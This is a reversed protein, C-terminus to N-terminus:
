PTKQLLVAYLHRRHLGSVPHGDCRVCQWTSMNRVQFSFLSDCQEPAEEVSAVINICNAPLVGVPSRPVHGLRITVPLGIKAGFVLVALLNVTLSPLESRQSVLYHTPVEDSIVGDANIRQQLILGAPEERDIEILFCPL